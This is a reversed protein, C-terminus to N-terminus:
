VPPALPMDGRKKIEIDKDTLLDHYSITEDWKRPQLPQGARLPDDTFTFHLVMKDDEYDATVVHNGGGVTPYILGDPATSYFIGHNGRLDLWTAEGNRTWRILYNDCVTQAVRRQPLSFWHNNAYSYFNAVFFSLIAYSVLRGALTALWPLAKLAPNLLKM